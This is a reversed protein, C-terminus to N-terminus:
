GGRARGERALPPATLALSLDRGHGCVVDYHAPEADHAAGRKVFQGAAAPAHEPEIAERGAVVAAGRVALGADDAEGIELM